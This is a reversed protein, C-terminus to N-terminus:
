RTGVAEASKLLGYLTTNVPVPVGTARGLEIMTGAFSEVETARGAIADQAMSTYNDPGLGDLVELWRDIDPESLDVGRANAVEIVERQAAVM